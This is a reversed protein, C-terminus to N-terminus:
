IDLNKKKKKKNLLFTKYLMLQGWHRYARTKRTSATGTPVNRPLVSMLLSKLKLKVTWTFILWAYMYTVHFTVYYLMIYYVYMYYM